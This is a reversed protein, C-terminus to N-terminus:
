ETWSRELFRLSVHIDFGANQAETHLPLLSKELVTPDVGLANRDDLLGTDVLQRLLERSFPLNRCILM